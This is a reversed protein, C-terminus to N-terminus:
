MVVCCANKKKKNKKNQNREIGDEISCSFPSEDSFIRNTHRRCLREWFPLQAAQVLSLWFFFPFSSPNKMEGRREEDGREGDGREGREEADGGEIKRTM